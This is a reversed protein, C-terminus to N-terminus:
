NGKKSEKQLAELRDEEDWQKQLEDNIAIEVDYDLIRKSRYEDNIDIAAWFATIPFFLWRLWLFVSKWFMMKWFKKYSVNCTEGYYKEYCKQYNLYERKKTKQSLFIFFAATREKRPRYIYRKKKKKNITGM